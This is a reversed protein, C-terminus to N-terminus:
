FTYIVGGTGYELKANYRNNAFSAEIGFSASAGRGWFLTTKVFPQIRYVVYGLVSDSIEPKYGVTPGSKSADYGNPGQVFDYGFALGNRTTIEFIYSRTLTAPEYTIKFTGRRLDGSLPETVNAITIKTHFGSQPGVVDAEYLAGIDLAFALLSLVDATGNVFDRILRMGPLISSRNLEGQIANAVELDAIDDLGSPDIRNAPNSSAYIYPQLTGPDRLNGSFSDRSVFTGTAPDMYRARLYDLGTVGDRQQGAFLYSNVTSGSQAIIRGFADYVYRDTVRGGADTLARTSGLGDVLFYSMAPGRKQSILSNGYVYSAVILGGPRYELLVQAYPQVTDILYRTEEDSVTQSVRIGDADYQYLSQTTGSSTTVDAEVMRKQSDWKYITQDTPSTVQSLTNGNNDYTYQTVVGNLTTTLLRDNADYTSSTLGQASDNMTLRNGGPDYTYVITRDGAAADTITENTLRGLADYTYDVRRGTDEVVALRLGAASLTYHYSSIVGSPGDDELYVLRNLTDYQRVEKTGNPFDTETQNGAADYTYKTVGGSPDTVTALRNLADFTYSTTGAPTTVSTRNGAADYTYSIITGDPDTRSLLRDRADYTYSTTGRADTVSARDGSPTYVYTVSTGDAFKEATLRGRTDYSYTTTAGNFDTTSTVEGVGNYATTSRQSMPLVTATREGLGNYEYKTVHGNADTQSVLDGAEDYAYSTTQGLADVVATLRGLADYQYHTTIGDQDTRAIVRGGPDLSVSSKSGDAYDTEVTRGAADLVFTTTHGLPDTEAVLRNAADYTSATTDGLADTASTQNGAADYQFTTRKGLEDVQATVEGAADYETSTSTGDPNTTTVKRGLADYTFATKRGQEDIQAIVHGAADYQTQTTTGDPNITETLEGRDDYVYTTVHGLADIMATKNAAKDYQYTTVHGEADTETLVHGQADYTTSSVLTRAGSPTTLTTTQTLQNGNADYTYSSVHGLADTQQLLHGAGDYQFSTTGGNADTISTPNGSADYTFSTVAGSPDTTSLLNGVSDYSNTTTDGLADTSTAELTFPALPVRLNTYLQITQYTHRTIHGMPDTETLINGQADYTDTTTRGLPDTETLVDNAADYTRTTVGGLADTEKIINGRDDYVYTTPNGLQDTVVETSDTPDYSLGVSHGAADTESILRGQSDYNTRIGTHGLPDIVQTLYHAEPANYVFQTTDGQRDTVAVLDGGADYQYQVKKGAPDTVAVIRGQPDRDFSIAPGASSVIGSDTFTLTNGNADTATLLKGSSGDITYSLGDKTSLTYIGGFAPSSANYPTGDVYSDFQGDPGLMLETNAVSLQSTVGADPVFKPEYVGLFSGRFGPALTPAFTFGQRQGGPLTVYVRTRTTFPTYVLDAEAGTPAVSTRLNADRYDLTWGYGFDESSGANLSDYTRTVTIPIGAVPITLDNFSLRFNGLKLNGAVNVTEDLTSDYGGTNKAYLRLDYADNSLLSPDFTGLTGHSVPSTGTAIETFNDSGLPAISLTYYLLHSDVVSGVVPTPATIVGDSAPSDFSITPPSNVTPDIVTLTSSATGVNGAPDTATAVVALDGATTMTITARGSSDLLVPMGAVTLTLSQVAVNDVATVLFTAPSGLDAPSPTVSVAVQPPQTDAMVTVDFSKPARAGRNDSVAISVHQTGIDAIGTPWTLRGLADISMGSPGAVLTYTLPDGDPDSAQVDYRYTLGATITTPATSNIVPPQNVTVAISFSQSASAGGVNTAVVTVPNPGAQSPDPTWQILGSSRNITMGTPFATLSYSLALSAPDTATVQYQYAAGAAAVYTPQSTITPPLVPPTSSVVVTFNQTAGGGLPDTVSLAVAEPAVEDATPTWQILGSAPDITMGAPATTLVYVLPGTGSYQAVVPYSYPSGVAGQTPPESTILPPVDVGHVAVSFSQTAQSSGDSVSVTVAQAGILDATPTWRLTGLAPDISMGAPAAALSWTLAYGSPDTATLNYAYPTGVAASGPPTSTIVPPFPTFLNTVDVAFPQAAKGGQDNDVELIVPSPGLQSASPTWQILGTADVTMGAPAVVLTYTLPSANPDHAQVPYWYRGGVRVSTPPTSTILPTSAPATASVVVNITQTTQKGEPDQVILLAAQAGIEAATPVWTIVGTSADIAMGAPANQLIYALAGGSSTQAHVDYEYALGVFAQAPPTSTIVPPADAPSVTIDLEQLVADGRADRARLLASAPGVEDASPTWVVVGTQPDVGMGSPHFPLDFTLTQGDPNDVVVDYRYFQGVTAQRPPTSTITPPRSPPPNLQTNAFDIGTTAQGAQVTVTYTGSTPSTERWGPQGLEAVTYTGPPLNAFAYHGNADTTTFPDNPDLKGDHNLDLYVTWNPTGPEIPPPLPSVAIPAFAIAESEGPGSYTGGPGSYELSWLSQAELSRGNWFVRNVGTGETVVFIDGVMTSLQAAPAGALGPYADFFVNANPEVVGIADVSTAGASQDFGLTYFTAKGQPTIAWLGTDFSGNSPNGNQGVIICGALPGYRASDDPLVSIGETWWNSSFENLQVLLKPSGAADIQWVGNTTTLAILDGGFLGTEDFTLAGPEGGVFAGPLTVWPNIVTRGGDTIREIPFGAQFTFVDGPEFGGVNGWRAVAIRVETDYHADINRHTAYLSNTGDPKFEFINGASDTALLSNRPEDYTLAFIGSYDQFIATPSLLNPANAPAYPQVAVAYSGFSGSTAGASMVGLYLRTAGAPVIIQQIDGSSTRGDGIFFVQKLQPSITAYDLGGPVNGSPSFDLEPPAASGDPQDPGLFVGVLSNARAVINSIGNEAGNTHAVFPYYNGDPNSQYNNVIGAPVTVMLTSGGSLALGPVLLPSQAPAVDGGSATSGDPMGALYPDATGEVTSLAPPAPSTTGSDRTGDGNLDNFVTGQIGGTGQKKVSVTFSQTDFGGQGDDVRVTVAAPPPPGVLSVNDLGIYTDLSHDAAYPVFIVAAPTFGLGAPVQFVASRYAWDQSDSTPALRAVRVRPDALSLGSALWVDYGGPNALDSRDGQRIYGSVDYNVGTVLPTALVQAIGEDVSPDASDGAGEGAVWRLGDEASPASAWWGFDGPALGFSGDTSFTDPSSNASVWGLPLLGQGTAPAAITEFSPNQLLSSPTAPWRITGTQPHITMGAPATTLSYHLPDGDPDVARVQYLYGSNLSVPLSGLVAHTLVFKLDFVHTQGDGTFQVDFRPTEAPGTLNKFLVTPDSPIVDALEPLVNFSYTVPATATIGGEILLTYTGGQLTISGVDQNSGDAFQVGGLPDILWWAAYGFSSQLAAFDYSDGASATFRYVDTSNGPSLTSSVAVGPTMPAGASLDLVRFAYAGTAQGAGSVTLTYYGAPLSLVPDQPGSFGGSSTFSRDSVPTGGPGSLTWQFSANNTLADFHFLGAAPLTFTYHDLEGPEAMTGNVTASVAMSQTMDAVPTVNFSYSTTGTDSISGEILLTYEGTASLTLRGGDYGLFNSFLVDDYPDILRWFVPQTNGPLSAFYYSDGASATFRYLDTSNAPTLTGNVPTGPKITAAALLDLLRFSYDGTTQGAGSVMLTYNGAPLSLVPDQPGSSADSSAFSLDSVPTGDPGSLSWQLSADNTLSDFYFLGAAPLTFIYSDQEGPTSLTGSVTSGVQLPTGVPAPPPVNGLFAVNFSYSTTGTDGVGGEILLTYEGTAPLALQGADSGLTSGFVVDGYPDILRWYAAKQTDGQVSTFHDSDGASAAFRYTDTSSAPSLTGNVTAGEAITTAASLDLLRFSYGGTTSGTGSVTLTYNGAPLSLVPDAPGYASRADSNTFPRDSVPTGDPGSLSWQLFSNATMSDFYFLGAAPLTFTYHDLEGPAALTASETAGLTLPQTTDAVPAVDFSYGTTGTAGVGGEILLTYEGTAPLALRGGDVQLSSAFLDDGYPDILRWYDYPGVPQLSAFYYSDGASAPFRYMDTSSAPVLTGSVTTGPKITTASSLDLMRFSYAGITQNSSFVTLTYGGAPLSLVPDPPGGNGDFERDSVPTGGGGRLSWQLYSYFFGASPGLADFYLFSAAPLTFGYRDQEGLSTLAATVTAGLTIPTGAPPGLLSVTQDITQGPNLIVQIGQPDENASAPNSPPAQNYQTVPDSIITPPDNGAQQRVDIAYAQVATGGRGDAVQLMVSDTGVQAATPSWQVLGSNPNITLGAPGNVVSFTLPDGDPDTARAQYVYPTAVNGDVVPSTTFVPPRDPPPNIVSLTFDQEASGGHGDDVKLAVAANGVDKSAPSWAVAGTAANVSMGSPGSLWSFTLPDNDPDSATADYVYAHGVIAELNPTSTFQPPRNLQALFAVDYTFPVGSPNYFSLTRAGTSGGAALKGGPVLTSLDFYPLGDPSTGDAGRVRVTPDSLHEVAVILPADIFYTGANRAALDAYLVGNPQDLSTRAYVPQISASVDALHAFDITAAPQRPPAGPQGGPDVAQGTLAALRVGGVDVSTTGAGDNNVLRFVLMAATGPTVRAVDLTVTQGSVTAWAGLAAPQGESVNLFADRNAAFTPVLSQGSADVLAVEFADKARGQSTADFALNSTDFSLTSAQAPIIIPQSLTVDFSDGERLTADCGSLTVTGKGAASGGSQRVVANGFGICVELTFPFDTPTSVNGARDTARFHVTHPGDATDDLPLSTTLSFNGSADLALPAYAGGDLASEASAVGSLADTVQGTITINQNTSLGPAPSTITVAPPTTDLTFAFDTNPSVNGVLDTARFHVTHSGDASGDLPLFVSLLFTGDPNFSVPFFAANDVGAQLSALGSLDDTAQGTITVHHNVILGPAPSTVMITPPQTDLLVALAATQQQGFADSARVQLDNAGGTLAVSFSFRGSSDATTSGEDFKGDSGTELAVSAGPETTGGLTVTTSRTALAGSPLTVVGPPTQLALTLPTITTTTGLNYRWETYDFSSIMGDLNSDAAVLYHGDGAVSGYISRILSGDSLDIRHDGNADAALFVNLQFAGSTGVDGGVALNYSGFPLSALALSQTDGALDANFYTPTITTGSSTAIAAASPDLSSGAAQIVQFGIVAKSGPITFGSASLTIPIQDIKGAAPIVGSFQAVVNSGALLTRDELREIALRTRRARRGLLNPLRRPKRVIVGGLHSGPVTTSSFRERRGGSETGGDM